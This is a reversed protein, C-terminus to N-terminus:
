ARLWGDSGLAGEGAQADRESIKLRMKGSVAGSLPNLAPPAPPPPSALRLDDPSTLVASWEGRNGLQPSRLSLLGPRHQGRALRCRLPPANTCLSYEWHTQQHLSRYSPSHLPIYILFAPHFRTFFPLAFM